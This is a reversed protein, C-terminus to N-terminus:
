PDTINAEFSTAATELEKMLNSLDVFLGWIIIKYDLKLGSDNKAKPKGNMANVDNVLDALTQPPPRPSNPKAIIKSLHQVNMPGNGNILIGILKKIKTAHKESKFVGDTLINKVNVLVERYSWLVVEKTNDEVHFLKIFKPPTSYDKLHSKAYNKGKKKYKSEHKGARSVIHELLRKKVGFVNEM